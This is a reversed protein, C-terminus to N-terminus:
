IVEAGQVGVCAAGVNFALMFVLVGCVSVVM